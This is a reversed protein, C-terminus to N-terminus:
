RQGLERGLSIGERFRGKLKQLTWAKRSRRQIERRVGGKGALV